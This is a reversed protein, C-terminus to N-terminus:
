ALMRRFRMLSIGFLATGFIALALAQPWLVALGVGKLLIGLAIPLYYRLPSALSLYQLVLPMNEIPVITGSLFLMPFLVFFALLLAQQMNKAQTAMLVGIGTSSLFVLLSLAFFLVLDGRLPVGFLTTSLALGIGLGVLTVIMMPMMKAFILQWPRIPTVLLQELTGAEKERVIAAAALVVGLMVIAIATMSIMSFHSYKLEPNYWARIQNVVQPMFQMQAPSVGLRAIEIKESYGRVIGAAYGMAMLATNTNSGDALLQVQATEGRGLNLSFDVPIVLGVSVTGEQLKQALDTGDTVDAILEFRGSARFKEVLTRSEASRDYDLLATPIHNVELTLAYGCLVIESFAYLVLVVLLKDRFFQIFEKRILAVIRNNMSFGFQPM